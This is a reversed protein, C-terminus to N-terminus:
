IQTWRTFTKTSNESIARIFDCKKDIRILNHMLPAQRTTSWNFEDIRNEGGEDFSAADPETEVRNIGDLTQQAGDQFRRSFLHNARRIL